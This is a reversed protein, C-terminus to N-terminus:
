RYYWVISGFILISCSILLATRHRYQDAIIGMRTSFCARGLSVM